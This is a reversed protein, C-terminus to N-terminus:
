KRPRCWFFKYDHLIKIQREDVIEMIGGILGSLEEASKKYSGQDLSWLCRGRWNAPNWVPDALFLRGNQRLVRAIERLAAQLDAPSLHHAVFIMLCFDFTKEALPLRMASGRIARDQAHRQKFGYIKARDCDLCHYRWTPPCISRYLGTGGGVDLVLGPIASHPLVEQHFLKKLKESGSFRQALDYVWNKLLYPEM